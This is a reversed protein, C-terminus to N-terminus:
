SNPLMVTELWYCRITDFYTLWQDESIPKSIFSSAGLRYAQVIDVEECSMSLVVVPPRVQAPIQKVQRLFQWGNEAKPLYLDMLILKPPSVENAVCENLYALAQDASDTFIPTTNTLSRQIVYRLLVQHDPNDEVVLLTPKRSTPKM